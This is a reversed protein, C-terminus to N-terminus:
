KKEKEFVKKLMYEHLRRENEPCAFQQAEELLRESHKKYGLSELDERGLRFNDRILSPSSYDEIYIVEVKNDCNQDNIEAKIGPMRLILYCNKGSAREDIAYLADWEKMKVSYQGQKLTIQSCIEGLNRYQNSSKEEQPKPEPEVMVPEPLTIEPIIPERVEKKPFCAVLLAALGVFQEKM